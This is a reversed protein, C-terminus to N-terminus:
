KIKESLEKVAEILLGILGHYSVCYYGDDKTKVTEPLIKLVEQAIIGASQKENITYTYGSLEKVKDLAKPIKKIDSKLREDSTLGFDVAAIEGGFTFTSTISTPHNFTSCTLTAAAAHGDANIYAKETGQNNKTVFSGNLSFVSNSQGGITFKCRENGSGGQYWYTDGDIKVDNDITMVGSFSSTGDQNIMITTNQSGPQGAHVGTGVRLGGSGSQVAIDVYSDCNINNVRMTGAFSSTGDTKLNIKDTTGDNMFFSGTTMTLNDNVTMAGGFSSTDKFMCTGSFSSAAASSVSLGGNITARNGVTLIDEIQMAGAFSSTGDQNVMAKETFLGVGHTGTGVRLGGPGSPVAVDIYTDCNVNNVRMVGAFSSTGNQSLSIKDTTGDNMVFSEGTQFINSDITMDDGFSSTGTIETNNNVTTVGGINLNGNVQVGSSFSGTGNDRFIIKNTSPGNKIIFSQGDIFVNSDITMDGGFSSTGTTQLNDDLTMAGGFSSAGGVDLTQNIDINGGFSGNGDSNLLITNTTDNAISVNTSIHVNSDILKLLSTRTIESTETNSGLMCIINSDDELLGDTSTKIVLTNRRPARVISQVSSIVISGQTDSGQQSTNNFGALAGIAISGSGMQNGAQSGIALASTSSGAGGASNGIRVTSSTVRDMLDSVNSQLGTIDGFNTVASIQGQLNTINSFDGGQKDQLDLINSFNGNINGVNSTHYIELNSLRAANDSTDTQLITVNAYTDEVIVANAALDTILNDIRIVNNFLDTEIQGVLPNYPNNTGVSFNAMFQQVGLIDSQAISINSFNNSSLVELNSTRTFLQQTDGVDVTTAGKAVVTREGNDDLINFVIERVQPTKGVM